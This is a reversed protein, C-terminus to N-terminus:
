RIINTLDINDIDDFENLDGNDEILDDYPNYGGEVVNETSPNFIFMSAGIWINHSFEVAATASLTFPTIVNEYIANLMTNGLISAPILVYYDLLEYAFNKMHNLLTLGFNKAEQNAPAYYLVTYVAFGVFLMPLTYQPVALLEFYKATVTALLAVANLVAKVVIPSAYMIFQGLTQAIQTIM